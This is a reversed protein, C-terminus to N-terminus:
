LTHLAVLEPARLWTQLGVWRTAEGPGEMLRHM